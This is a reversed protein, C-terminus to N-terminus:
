SAPPVPGPTREARRTRALAAARRRDSESRPRVPGTLLTQERLLSPLHILPSPM